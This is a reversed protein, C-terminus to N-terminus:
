RRGARANTGGGPLLFEARRRIPDLAPELRLYLLYDSREEAAKKLFELAPGPEGLALHISARYLAPVYRQSGPADLRALIERAKGKEGSEACAAAWQALTSPSESSLRVAEEQERIAERYMGKRQYAMGLTQHALAFNPDLELTRRYQEIARDYERSYYFCWGAGVNIVLSLPDLELARKMAAQARVPDGAALLRHAEWHWATAYGPNLEIARGLSKRAGDLDWEFSLQAYGLSAHAEALGPDLALARRAAELAKPMAETPAVADYGNSGLLAWSDALGSYAPAYGPDLRVAEEFYAAARRLSAETRRNWAYRGRLYARYAEPNVARVSLPALHARVGRAVSTALENELALVDRVDRDYDEAWLVRGTSSEILRASV